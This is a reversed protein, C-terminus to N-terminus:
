LQTHDALASLEVPKLPPRPNLFGLNAPDIKKKQAVIAQIAPGCMRGQCPGMGTGLRRKIENMDETEEQLVEQIEGFPIERCRCIMTDNRPLEYLGPRPFSITDVVERFRKSRALRKYYPHMRQQADTKTLYGLAQAVALGAIRGEDIAVLSGAVGTCDGAAFVDPLSTKMNERRDVIWGGRLLDYRHQCGAMQTLETSPIFGYGVAVTDVKFIQETGPKPRWNRDVEAIIAEEVQGSGRAEVIIHNRLFPIRAKGIEWFYRAADALLSWQGWSARALKGWNEVRGAEVIGAVKGGVKLIQSALALQLPGSGVLLINEGPLVQQNKVLRQAGGATFVGPLTWGPFPVPRDFAGTSIILKQFCFSQSDGDRLIAIENNEFIGWSLCADMYEVNNRISAFESLLTQGRKYDHGLAKPDTVHFGDHFQRFIQGGALTNEDLMTVQVGAQVAEIAASMGAPGAGIILLEVKKM